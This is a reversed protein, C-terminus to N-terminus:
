IKRETLTIQGTSANSFEVDSSVRVTVPSFITNIEERNLPANRWKKIFADTENKGNYVGKGCLAEILDNAYEFTFQYAGASFMNTEFDLDCIFNCRQKFDSVSKQTTIIAETKPPVVIQNSVEKSETNAVGWSKNYHANINLTIETEGKVPSTLGGYGVLQRLALGVEVGAEENVSKTEEESVTYSRTIKLSESNNIITSSNLDTVEVNSLVPEEYNRSVVSKPRVNIFDIYAKEPAHKPNYFRIHGKGMLEYKLGEAYDFNNWPGSNVNGIKAGLQKAREELLGIVIDDMDLVETEKGLREDHLVDGPTALM